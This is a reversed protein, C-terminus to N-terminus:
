IARQDAILDEYLLEYTSNKLPTIENL